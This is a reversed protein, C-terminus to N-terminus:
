RFRKSAQISRCEKSKSRFNKTQQQRYNVDDKMEFRQMERILKMKQRYQLETIIGNNLKELFGCGPETTHTCNSFRCVEDSFSDDGEFSLSRIGPNDMIYHGNNMLFIRRNTTTHRGKDNEGVEFTKQVNSSLLYNILTSKGVGSSGIVVSTKGETFILNLDELGEKQAVSFSIISVDPFWNNLEIKKEALEEITVLDKKSLLIYPVINESKAWAVYRELRPLNFEMNISTVVLMQDVNHAITQKKDNKLRGLRNFPEIQELREHDRLQVYDGCALHLNENIKIFDFSEDEFQVIWKNIEEGIVRGLNGIM